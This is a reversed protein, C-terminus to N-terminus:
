PRDVMVHVTKLQLVQTGRTGVVDLVFLIPRAPLTRPNTSPSLEQSTLRWTAGNPYTGTQTAGYTAARGATQLHSEAHALTTQRTNVESVQRYHGALAAYVAVLGLTVIVFAVLVEILAFGDDAPHARHVTM